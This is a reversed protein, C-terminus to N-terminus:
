WKGLSIRWIKQSTTKYREKRKGKGSYIKEGVESISTHLTKQNPL